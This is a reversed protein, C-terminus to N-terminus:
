QGAHNLFHTFVAIIANRTPSTWLDFSLHVKTMLRRIEARIIDKKKVFIRNLEKRMSGYSLSLENATGYDLQYLLARLYPDITLSSDHTPIGSHTNMIGIVLKTRRLAFPAHKRAAALGEEPIRTFVRLDEKPQSLAQARTETLSQTQVEPRTPIRTRTPAVAVATTSASAAVDTWKRSPAPATTENGMIRKLAQIVYTTAEKAIQKRPGEFCSIVNDVSQAIAMFVDKRAEYHKAEENLATLVAGTATGTMTSPGKATLPTTTPADPQSGVLSPRLPQAETERRRKARSSPPPESSPGSGRDPGASSAPLPGSGAPPQSAM